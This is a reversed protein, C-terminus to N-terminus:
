DASADGAAGGEGAAAGDSGAGDDGMADSAVDTPADALADNEIADPVSSDFPTGKSADVWGVGPRAPEHQRDTPPGSPYGSPPIELGASAGGSDSCAVIGAGVLAVTGALVWPFDAM